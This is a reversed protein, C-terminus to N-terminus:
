VLGPIADRIRSVPLPEAIVGTSFPLVQERSIGTDSALADCCDIASQLGPAGTGANANGSNILLYRSDAATALHQRCLQVPAASFHSQTFVAALSAGPAIELLTLDKIAPDAKIGCHAAALRIGGVPHLRQPQLLGVAM